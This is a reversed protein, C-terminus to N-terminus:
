NITVSTVAPLGRYTLIGWWHQTPDLHPWTATVTFPRGGSVGISRQALELNGTDRRPLVWSILSAEVTTATDAVSANVYLRYRGPAPATLTVAETAAPGTSSAVLHAGRYVYLDVDGGQGADVSFRAARSGKAVTLTEMATSPSTSPSTPDFPGPELTLSTPTAPVLGSTAVRITGTVGATAPIDVAARRASGTVEAPVSALEPRVVVPSAVRDGNRDRWTLTGAAFEDYTAHRTATMSVRFSASEGPRLTLTSPTVSVGIGRLGDVTATYTAPATGVNTVTRTVTTRGVLDGVAISASNVRSAGASV